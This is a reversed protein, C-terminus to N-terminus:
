VEPRQGVRFSKWFECQDKDDVTVTNHSSTSRSYDRREGSHYEFVGADVCFRLGDITWEFALVDGHGHAPLYDAGIRGGDFLLLDGQNRWGYYGAKPFEIQKHQTTRSGTLMEHASLAQGPAYTMALGGDGFLSTLGDPHSTDAVVQAMLSLKAGLTDRLNSAPLVSFAELLDCFVQTHYAPSLEFHFGDDLIQEPLQEALLKSGLRTWSKAEPDDHSVVCGM